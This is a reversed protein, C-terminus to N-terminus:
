FKSIPPSTHNYFFLSLKLSFYSICFYLNIKKLLLELAFYVGFDTGCALGLKGGSVGAKHRMLYM